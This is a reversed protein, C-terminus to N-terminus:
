RSVGADVAEAPEVAVAVGVSAGHHGVGLDQEVGEVLPEGGGLLDFALDRRAAFLDDADAEVGGGEQQPADGVVALGVFLRAGGPGGVM